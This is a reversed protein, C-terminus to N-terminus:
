YVNSFSTRHVWLLFWKVRYLLESYIGLPVIMEAVLKTEM